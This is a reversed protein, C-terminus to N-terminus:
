LIGAGRRWLSSSGTDEKGKAMMRPTFHEQEVSMKLQLLWWPYMRMRLAAALWGHRPYNRIKKAVIFCWPNVKPVSSKSRRGGYKDARKFYNRM